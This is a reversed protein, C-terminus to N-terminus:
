GGSRRLTEGDEGPILDVETHCTTRNDGFVFLFPSSL